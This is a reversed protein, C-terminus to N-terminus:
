PNLVGFLLRTRNWYSAARRQVDPLEAGVGAGSVQHEGLAVRFYAEDFETKVFKDREDTNMVADLFTHKLTHVAPPAWIDIGGTSTMTTCLTKLLAITCPSPLGTDPTPATPSALRILPSSKITELTLTTTHQALTTNLTKISDHLPQINKSPLLSSLTSIAERTIRLLATSQLPQTETPTETQSSLKDINTIFADASANLSKDFSSLYEAPNKKSLTIVIEHATEEDEEDFEEIKDQWRIKGLNELTQKTRRCEILWTRLRNLFGVLNESIGLHSRRVNRTFTRPVPASMKPLLESQWINETSARESQVVSMLDISLSELIQAQQEILGIIRKSFTEQIFTMITNYSMTSFCSPLLIDLVMQRTKVVARLHSNEIAAEVHKNLYQLVEDVWQQTSSRIESATTTTRKFYPTFSLIDIPLLKRASDLQLTEITVITTDELIPLKQLDNLLEVVGRGSLAKIATVSAIFYYCRQKLDHRAQSATQLDELARQSLRQARIMRFHRIMDSSSSSTTLCYAGAAEILQQFPMRPRLFVADICNLLQQRGNKLRATLWQSTGSSGHEQELHKLLLRAITILRSALLVSREKTAKSGCRLLRDTLKMQSATAATKSLTTPEKLEESPKCAQSLASISAEVERSQDNLEVIQEATSLLDRYNSGVLARLKEKDRSASAQLQKELARVTSVPHVELAEQWTTPFMGSEM